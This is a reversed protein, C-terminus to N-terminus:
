GLLHKFTICIENSAQNVSSNYSMVPYINFDSIKLITEYHNSKNKLNNKFFM